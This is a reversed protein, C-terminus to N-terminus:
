RMQQCNPLHGVTISPKYLSDSSYNFTEAFNFTVEYCGCMSKIAERDKKKKDKQSFASMSVLLAMVITIPTRM